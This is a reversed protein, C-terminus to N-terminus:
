MVGEWPAAPRVQVCSFWGLPSVGRGAGVPVGRGLDPRPPVLASQRVRIRSLSLYVPRDAHSALAPGSGVAYSRWCVRGRWSRM